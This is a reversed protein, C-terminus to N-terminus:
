EAARDTIGGFSLAASHQRGDALLRVLTAEPEELAARAARARRRAPPGQRQVSVVHWSRSGGHSRLLVTAHEALWRDFGEAEDDPVTIMYRAM